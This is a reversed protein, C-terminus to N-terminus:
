NSRGTVVLKTGRAEEVTDILADSLQAAVDEAVFLRTGQEEAVEDGEQPGERFAIRIRGGMPAVDEGYVRVGFTEPIGESSRLQDLLAVAEASLQVM